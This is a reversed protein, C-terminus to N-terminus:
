IVGSKKTTDTGDSTLYTAITGLSNGDKDYLTVQGDSERLVQKYVLNIAFWDIAVELYAPDIVAGNICLIVEDVGGAFAADPWDARYLGPMNTADIQIMKNDGHASDTSTLATADVKAAPDVGSRVYTMDLDTITLGTEPTGDAPDVLKFYTSVDTAGADVRM